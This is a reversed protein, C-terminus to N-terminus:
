KLDVPVQTRRKPSPHPVAAIRNVNSAKTEAASDEAGRVRLWLGDIAAKPSPKSACRGATDEKEEGGDNNAQGEAADSSATQSAASAITRRNPAGTSAPRAKRRRLERTRMVVDSMRTAVESKPKRLLVNPARPLRRQGEEWASRPPLSAPSSPTSQHLAKLPLPAVVFPSPDWQAERLVASLAAVPGSSAGDPSLGLLPFAALTQRYLAASTSSPSSSAPTSATSSKLSGKSSLRGKRYHPPSASPAQSARSASSSSSPKSSTPSAVVRLKSPSPSASSPKSPPPSPTVFPSPPDFDAAYEDSHDVEDTMDEPITRQVSFDQTEHASMM